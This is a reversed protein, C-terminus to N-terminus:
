LARLHAGRQEHHCVYPTAAYNLPHQCVHSAAIVLCTADLQVEGCLGDHTGSTSDIHITWHQTPHLRKRGCVVEHKLM